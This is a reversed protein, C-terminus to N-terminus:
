KVNLSLSTVSFTAATSLHRSAPFYIHRVRGSFPTPRYSMEQLDFCHCILLTPRNATQYSPFPRLLWFETQFSMLIVVFVMQSRQVAYHFLVDREIVLPPVVAEAIHDNYDVDYSMEFRTLVQMKM